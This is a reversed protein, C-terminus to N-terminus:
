NGRSLRFNKALGFDALKLSLHESGPTVLFNEPKIDRHMYGNQHMYAIASVAQFMIIKIEQEQFQQNMRLRDQLEQYLNKECYEFIINVENEKKNHVM